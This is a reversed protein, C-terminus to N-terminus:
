KTVLVHAILNIRMATHGVERYGFALSAHIIYGYWRLFRDNTTYRSFHSMWFAGAILVCTDFYKLDPPSGYPGDVFIRARTKHETGLTQLAALRKTFGSHIKLFFVLESQGIESGEDLDEEAETSQGIRDRDGNHVHEGDLSAITFPNGLWLLSAGQITLFVSQGASWHFHPPRPIAMRIINHSIVELNCTALNLPGPNPAMRSGKFFFLTVRLTRIFRDLGWIVFCPWIYKQLRIRVYIM